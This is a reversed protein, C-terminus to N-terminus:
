EIIKYDEQQIIPAEVRGFLKEKWNTWNYKKAFIFLIIPYIVLVPVVIEYIPSTAEEATYRFIADTQLASQLHSRLLTM